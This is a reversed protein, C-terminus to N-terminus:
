RREAGVAHRSLFDLTLRWAADVSEANYRYVITEDGRQYVTPKGARLSHDFGHTTGPFLHHEVPLGKAANAKAQEICSRPDADNDDAGLLVLLPADTDDYFNWHHDRYTRGRIDNCWPYVSIIAAFRDGGLHKERFNKSAARLGAMGGYSLGMQVIRKGDVFTMSRLHRMAAVADQAYETVSVAFSSCNETRGRPGLHDVVLAVYGAALYRQVWEFSSQRLGGCGHSIVAAPFPGAGEPAYLRAGKIIGRGPLIVEREPQAPFGLDPGAAFATGAIGAALLAACRPERAQM